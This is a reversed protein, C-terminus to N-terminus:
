TACKLNFAMGFANREDTAINMIAMLDAQTAPRGSYDDHEGRFHLPVAEYRMIHKMNCAFAETPRIFKSGMIKKNGFTIDQQQEKLSHATGGPTSAASNTTVNYRIAGELGAEYDAIRDFHTLYYDIEDPETTGNRSMSLALARLVDRGFATTRGADYMHGNWFGKQTPNLGEFTTDAQYGLSTQLQVRAAANNATALHGMAIGRLGMMETGANTTSTTADEIMSDVSLVADAAAPSNTGPSAEAITITTLSAGPVNASVTYYGQSPTDRKTLYRAGQSGGSDDRIHGPYTDSTDDITQGDWFQIRRGPKLFVGQNNTVTFTWNVATVGTVSAIGHALNDTPTASAADTEVLIGTGDGLSMRELEQNIFRTLRDVQKAKEQWFAADQGKSLEEAFWDVGYSGLFYAKQIIARDITHSQSAPVRQPNDGTAQFSGVYSGTVAEVRDGGRFNTPTVQIDKYFMARDSTQSRVYNGYLTKLNNVSNPVAQVM